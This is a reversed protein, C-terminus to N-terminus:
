SNLQDELVVNTTNEIISTDGNVVNTLRKSEAPSLRKRKKVMSEDEDDDEDAFLSLDVYKGMTPRGYIKKLNRKSNKLNLSKEADTFEQGVSV